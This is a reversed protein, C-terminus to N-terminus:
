VGSSLTLLYVLLGTGYECTKKKKKLKEIERRQKRVEEDLDNIEGQLRARLVVNDTATRRVEEELEAIRSQGGFVMVTIDAALQRRVSTNPLDYGNQALETHLQLPHSQNSLLISIITLASTQTNDHKMVRAGDQVMCGWYEPSGRREQVRQDPAAQDVVDNWM